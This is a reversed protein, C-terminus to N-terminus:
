GDPRFFDYPVTNRQATVITVFPGRVNLFDLMGV